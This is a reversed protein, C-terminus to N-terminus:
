KALEAVNGLRIYRRSAEDFLFVERDPQIKAYYEYLKRNRPGLDQARIIRADDPWAVTSNYVPEQDIPRQRSYHFLVLARGGKYNAEWQDIQSMLTPTFLQDKVDRGAEPLASIAM